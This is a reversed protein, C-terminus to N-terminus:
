IRERHIRRDAAARLIRQEARGRHIRADGLLHVPPSGGLAGTASSACIASGALRIASTLQGAAFVSAGGAGILAIGTTLAGTGSAGCTASGTLAAASGALSASASASAVAAGTLKISTSLAGAGSASCTASGTLGAGPATLAGTAVTSCTAAGTLAIATSLAGTGSAACTAAGTLGAGPATLSGTGSASAAAAGTLPISTTISGSGSAVVAAAGALRISTTLTGAAVATATAAGSLPVSTSLSGTGAASTAAAGTLRISTTLAGSGSSTAAASGNLPVSTSLAGTGSSTAAAAGTLTAGGVAAAFQLVRTPSKFLSAPNATVAKAEADSLARPWRIVMGISGSLNQGIRNAIQIENAVQGKITGSFAVGATKVGKQFVAVESATQRVLIAQPDGVPMVTGTASFTGVATNFGILTPAGSSEVRFQFSRTANDGNVLFGAATANLQAVVLYTYETGDPLVPWNASDFRDSTTNAFYWGKGYRAVVPTASGQKTLTAKGVLGPQDLLAFAVDIGRAIPNGVDLQSAGSQLLTTRVLGPLFISAGM